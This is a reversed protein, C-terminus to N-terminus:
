TPRLPDPHLARSEFWRSSDLGCGNGTLAVRRSRRPKAREWSVGPECLRSEKGSGRLGPLRHIIGVGALNEVTCTGCGAWPLVAVSGAVRGRHGPDPPVGCLM